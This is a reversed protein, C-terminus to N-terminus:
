ADWVGTGRFAWFSGRYFCYSCVLYLKKLYIFGWFIALGNSSLCRNTSDSVDKGGNDVRGEHDIEDVIEFGGLFSLRHSAKAM